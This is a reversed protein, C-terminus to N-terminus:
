GDLTELCRKLQDIVIQKSDSEWWSESDDLGDEMYLKQQNALVLLLRAFEGRLGLLSHLFTSLEEETIYDTTSPWIRSVEDWDATIIAWLPLRSKGATISGAMRGDHVVLGPYLGETEEYPTRWIEDYETV